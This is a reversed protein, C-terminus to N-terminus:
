NGVDHRTQPLEICESDLAFESAMGGLRRAVGMALFTRPGVPRLSGKSAGSGTGEELHM